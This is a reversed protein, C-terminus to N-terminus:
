AKLTEQMFFAVSHWCFNFEVMQEINTLHSQHLMAVSHQCSVIQNPVILRMVEKLWDTYM